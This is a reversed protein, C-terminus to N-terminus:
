RGLDQALNLRDPVLRLVGNLYDIGAGAVVEYANHSVPVILVRSSARLVCCLFTLEHALKGASDESVQCSAALATRSQVRM